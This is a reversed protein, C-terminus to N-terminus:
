FSLDKGDLQCSAASIIIGGGSQMEFRVRLGAEQAGDTLSVENISNSAGWPATRDLVVERVADFKICRKESAEDLATLEVTAEAWDVAVSLLTWDHM